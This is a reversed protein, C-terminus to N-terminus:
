YLAYGSGPAYGRKTPFNSKRRPLAMAECRAACGIGLAYGRMM